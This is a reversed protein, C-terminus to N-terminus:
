TFVVDGCTKLVATVQDIKTWNIDPKKAIMRIQIVYKSELFHRLQPCISLKANIQMEYMQINAYKCLRMSSYKSVQMGAYKCVHMSAYKCKQM